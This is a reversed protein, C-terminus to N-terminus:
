MFFAVKVLSKNIPKRKKLFPLRNKNKRKSKIKYFIIKKYKYSNFLFSRKKRGFKTLIIRYRARANRLRISKLFKKRSNNTKLQDMKKMVFYKLNELIKSRDLTNAFMSYEQSSSNHIIDKNSNIIIKHKSKLKLRKKVNDKINNHHSNIQHIKQEVINNIGHLMQFVPPMSTKFPKKFTKIMVKYLTNFIRNQDKQFFRTWYWSSHERLKEINEFAQVADNLFMDFPIEKYKRYKILNKYKLLLTNVM